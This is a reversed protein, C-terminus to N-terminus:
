SFCRQWDAQSMQLPELYVGIGANNVLVDPPGMRELVRATMREVSTQDAVDVPEFIATAGRQTLSKTAARGREEQVGTLPVAAGEAAFCEAIALGIGQAAGTIIATKGALRNTM